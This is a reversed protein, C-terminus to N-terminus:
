TARGSPATRGILAGAFLFASPLPSEARMGSGSAGDAGAGADAASTGIPLGRGWGRGAASPWPGRAARRARAGRDALAPDHLRDQHPPPSLAVLDDRPLPAEPRRLRGAEGRDRDRHALDRVLVEELQGEDLVDLALLQVRDLLRLREVAQLVLEAEGLLLDGAPDPRSRVVTAFM